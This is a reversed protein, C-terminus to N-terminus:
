RGARGKEVGAAYGAAVLMCIAPQELLGEVDSQNVDQRNKAFWALLVGRDFTIVDTNSRCPDGLSPRSEDEIVVFRGRVAKGVASYGLCLSCMFTFGNQDVAVDHNKRAADIAAQELAKLRTARM